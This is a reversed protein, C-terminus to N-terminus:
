VVATCDLQQCRLARGRDQDGRLYAVELAQLEQEPDVLAPGRGDVRRLLVAHSSFDWEIVLSPPSTMTAEFGPVEQSPAM